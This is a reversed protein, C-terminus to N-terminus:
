SLLPHKCLDDGGIWSLALWILTEKDNLVNNITYCVLLFEKVLGKSQQGSLFEQLDDNIIIIWFISSQSHFNVVIICM